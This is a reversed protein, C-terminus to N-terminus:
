IDWEEEDDQGWEEDTGPEGETGEEAGYAACASELTERLERLGDLGGIAGETEDLLTRAGSAVGYAELPERRSVVHTVLARADRLLSLTDPTTRLSAMAPMASM